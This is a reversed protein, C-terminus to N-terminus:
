TGRYVGVCEGARIDYMRISAAASVPTEAGTVCSGIIVDDVGLRKYAKVLGEATDCRFGRPVVMAGPLNILVSAGAAADDSYVPFLSGYTPFKTMWDTSDGFFGVNAGALEAAWQQFSPTPSVPVLIHKGDQGPTVEATDTRLTKLLATDALIDDDMQLSAGQTFAIQDEGLDLMARVFDAFELTEIHDGPLIIKDMTNARLLALPKIPVEYKLVLRSSVQVDGGCRM